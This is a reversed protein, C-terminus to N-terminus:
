PVARPDSLKWKIFLDDDTLPAERRGDIPTPRELGDIPPDDCGIRRRRSIRNGASPRRM